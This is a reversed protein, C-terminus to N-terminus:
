SHAAVSVTVVPAPSPPVPTTGVVEKEVDKIAQLLTDGQHMHVWVRYVLWCLVGGTVAALGDMIWPVAQSLWDMARATGFAGLGLLYLATEFRWMNPIKLWFINVLLLTTALGCLIAAFWRIRTQVGSRLSAIEKDKAVSAAEEQKVTATAVNNTGTAADIAVSASTTHALASDKRPTAAPMAKIDESALNVETKATKLHIGTQETVTSGKEANAGVYSHTCGALVMIGSLLLWAFRNLM